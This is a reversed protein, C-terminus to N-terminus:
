GELRVRLAAARGARAAARDIRRQERADLVASSGDGESSGGPQEDDDGSGGEDASAGDSEDEAAAPDLRWSAARDLRACLDPPLTHHHGM